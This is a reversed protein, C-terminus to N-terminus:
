RGIKSVVASTASEITECETEFIEVVPAYQGKTKIDMNAIKFRDDKGKGTEAHWYTGQVFVPVPLPPKYVLFDIVLGGRVSRGGFIPVQYTYALKLSDLAKSVNWENVSGAPKGQITKPEEPAKIITPANAM